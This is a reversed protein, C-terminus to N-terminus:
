DGKVNRNQPKGKEDIRYLNAEQPISFSLLVRGNKRKSIILEISGFPTEIVCGESQKREIVVKKNKM